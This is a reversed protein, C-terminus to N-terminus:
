SSILNRNRKYNNDIIVKLENLENEINDQSHKSYDVLQWKLYLYSMSFTGLLFGAIIFKSFLLNKILILKNTKKFIQGKAIKESQSNM